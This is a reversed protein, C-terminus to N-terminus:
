CRARFLMNCAYQMCVVHMNCAYQMCIPPAGRGTPHAVLFFARRSTLFVSKKEDCVGCAASSFLDGKQCRRMHLNGAKGCSHRSPNGPPGNPLRKPLRRGMAGPAHGPSSRRTGLRHSTLGEKDNPPQGWIRGPCGEPEVGSPVSTPHGAKDGQQRAWKPWAGKSHHTPMSRHDPFSFRLM